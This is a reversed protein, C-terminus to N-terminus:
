GARKAAPVLYMEMMAFYHRFFSRVREEDLPVQKMMGAQLMVTNVPSMFMRRGDMADIERCEGSAIAKAFLSDYIPYLQTVIRTAFAHAVAPVNPGEQILLRYMASRDVDNVMSWCEDPMRRIYDVFSVEGAAVAKTLTMNVDNVAKEVVAEMLAMKSPFAEYVTPKSVGIAEGVDTMSTEEFGRAIFLDRAAIVVRARFQEKPSM